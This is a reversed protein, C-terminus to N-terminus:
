MQKSICSIRHSVCLSLIRNKNNHNRKLFKNKLNRHCPVSTASRWGTMCVHVYHKDWDLRELACLSCLVITYSVSSLNWPNFNSVPLTPPSPIDLPSLFNVMLDSTVSHSLCPVVTNGWIKIIKNDMLTTFWRISFACMCVLVHMCIHSSVCMCLSVPLSMHNQNQDNSQMKVMLNGALLCGPLATSNPAVSSFIYIPWLAFLWM